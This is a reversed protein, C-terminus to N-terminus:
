NSTWIILKRMFAGRYKCQVNVVAADSTNSGLSNSAVCRYAGSDVREAKTITLQNKDESFSIRPNNSIESGDKTWSLTPLPNGTANCHLTINEGEIKTM